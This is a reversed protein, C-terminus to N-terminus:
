TRHEALIEELRDRGQLKLKKLRAMEAEEAPTPAHRRNLEDIKRDFARHESMLRSVEENSQSLLTLLERDKAEM